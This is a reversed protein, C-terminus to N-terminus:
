PCAATSDVVDAAVTPDTAVNHIIVCTDDPLDAITIETTGGVPKFGEALVPTNYTTFGAAGPNARQEYVAAEAGVTFTQTAFDAIQVSIDFEGANTNAPFGNAFTAVGGGPPPPPAAVGPVQESCATGLVPMAALLSVLFAKRLSFPLQKVLTGNM